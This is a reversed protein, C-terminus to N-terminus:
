NRFQETGVKSLQSLVICAYIAPLAPFTTVDLGFNGNQGSCLARGPDSHTVGNNECPDLKLNHLRVRVPGVLPTQHAGRLYPGNSSKMPFCAGAISNSRLEFHAMVGYGLDDCFIVIYNPARAYLPASLLIAALILLPTKM